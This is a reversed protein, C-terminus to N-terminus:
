TSAGPSRWLRCAESFSKGPQFARRSRSRVSSSRSGPVRKAPPVVCTLREEMVSKSDRWDTGAPVIQAHPNQAPAYPERLMSGPSVPIVLPNHHVAHDREPGEQQHCGSMRLTSGEVRRENLLECTGFAFK